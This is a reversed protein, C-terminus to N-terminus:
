CQLSNRYETPTKGAIKGFARNFTRLSEFGVSFAIEIVLKESKELQVMADRIRLENIFDGIKLGTFIKFSRSLNSLSIEFHAALGERSIDERYNDEIYGIVKKLITITKDTLSKSESSSHQLILKQSINKIEEKLARNLEITEKVTRTIYQLEDDEQTQDPTANLLNLLTKLPKMIGMQLIYPSILLFVIFLILTGYLLDRATQHIFKRYNLIDYGIFYEKGGTMHKYLFYHSYTNNLYFRKKKQLPLQIDNKLSMHQYPQIMREHLKLGRIRSFHIHIFNNKNEAIFVVDQPLGRHNNKIVDREYNKIMITNYYDYSNDRLILTYHGAAMVTFLVSVLVAGTIKDAMMIPENATNIFHIIYLIYTIFLLLNMVMNLSIISISGAAMFVAVIISNVVELFVILAFNRSDRAKQTLPSIILKLASSSNGKNQSEDISQRLFVIIAWIFFIGCTISVLPSNYPLEFDTLSIRISDTLSTNIFHIFVILSIFLSIRFSWRAETEYRKEPYRYAFQILFTIAVPALAAIFWFYAGSHHYISYAFFYAWNFIAASLLYLFFFFTKSSRLTTRNKLYLYGAILTALLAPILRGFSLHSFYLHDM